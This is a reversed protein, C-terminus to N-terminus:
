KQECGVEWEEKELPTFVWDYVKETTKYGFFYGTIGGVLGGGAGGLFGCVPVSILEEPVAVQPGTQGLTIAATAGVKAGLSAGVKGGLMAGSWGGVQKVAERVRNDARYIDIASMGIGAIFCIRGGYKFVTVTKGLAKIKPSTAHNLSRSNTVKAIGSNGDVNLHWVPPNNSHVPLEHYDLRLCKKVNDAKFLYLSSTSGGKPIYMGRQHTMTLYYREKNLQVATRGNLTITSGAWGAGLGEVVVSANDNGLIDICSTLSNGCTAYLNLGAEEEMADRNLWRM